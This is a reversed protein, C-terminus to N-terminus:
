YLDKANFVCTVNKIPLIFFAMGTKKIVFHKSLTIKSYKDRTQELVLPM